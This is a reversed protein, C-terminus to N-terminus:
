PNWDHARIPLGVRSVILPTYIALNAICICTTDYISTLSDYYYSPCMNFHLVKSSGKVLKLQYGPLYLLFGIQILQRTTSDKPLLGHGVTSLQQM